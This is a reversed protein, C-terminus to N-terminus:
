AKAAEIKTLGGMYPRLVEPVVVSGDAQQYNELVAVLTRGVALGSGNLTHVYVPKGGDKPRYRADMRRAQFDGCVSCSSIERYANQGPLWVEIDYTKQSAFGMDGTCLLVTRFPLGLRKLIEEACGTMREHEALSEEPTTVSVLEVKAFQHQRIMGRTDRGAAGAESRFCPTWATMRLPLRVGDLIQERVLNTLSVEATPILWFDNTTKFLDEAFKPLNGTGYAAHDKVLLPPNVETYGFTDTHLDLMFCGLARELRALAGKLAVFRAGSIKQAAEFDMLGLAEGIEFHQKPTFDFKGPEGVKRVEVNDKEDAGDPVDDRPLNPIVELAAKIKADLDREDEEGKAIKDKLDAVEAMLKDATANDKAGKAKGIEKSAANRRSQAEQLTTLTTRRADDLAILGAALPELGRRALAKDFADANDRIWKIDFM